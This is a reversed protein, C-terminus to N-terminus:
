VSAEQSAEADGGAMAPRRRNLFYATTVSLLILGILILSVPSYIFVTAFSGSAQSLLLGQTFGEYAIPGLILGLALTGPHIGIRKLVYAILGCSLMVGVDFMSDNLSYTGLVALAIITPTIYRKPIMLIRGTIRMLFFGFILMLINSVFLSAIFTYAVLGSEQLMKPGPQLGFALLGGAVVAADADGPIGLSMLPIMSGGITANAAAESTFIGEIIGTGYREPHKDWRKSEGYAVLTAIPSGAGPLMGVATGIFASRLVLGIRSLYQRLVVLLYGRPEHYEAIYVDRSGMLNLMQAFSFFGLIGAVMDIGKSLAMIGFTYRPLGNMLDVGILSLLLGIFAGVLGRSLGGSTMSSITTLGLVALWFFQAPGFQLAISSLPGFLLLLVAASVIGGSASAILAGFLAKAAEGKLTMPYGDFTTTMASPNGPTNILIAAKSAGYIAGGWISGLIALGTAADMTFVIPLALAIALAASLGPMTAMLMGFIVGICM